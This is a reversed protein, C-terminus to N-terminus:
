LSAERVTDEVFLEEDSRLGKSWQGVRARKDPEPMPLPTALARAVVRRFRERVAEPDTPTM